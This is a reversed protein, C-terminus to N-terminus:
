VWTLKFLMAHAVDDDHFCVHRGGLWHGTTRNPDYSKVCWEGPNLSDRSSGGPLYTLGRGGCWRKWNDLAVVYPNHTGDYPPEPLIVRIM